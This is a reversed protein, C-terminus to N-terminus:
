AYAPSLCPLSPHHFHVLSCHTTSFPGYRGTHSDLTDFWRRCVHFLQSQRQSLLSPNHIIELWNLLQGSCVGASTLLFAPFSLTLSVVIRLCRRQTLLLGEVIDLLPLVGGYRAM